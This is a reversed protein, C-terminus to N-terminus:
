CQGVLKDGRGLKCRRRRPGEAMERSASLERSMPSRTASGLSSRTRSGILNSGTIMRLVRRARGQRAGKRNKPVMLAVFWLGHHAGLEKVRGHDRAALSNGGRDLGQARAGLQIAISGVGGAGGSRAANTSLVGRVPWGSGAPRPRGSRARHIRHTGCLV